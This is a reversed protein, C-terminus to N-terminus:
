LFIRRLGNVFLSPSLWMLKHEWTTYNGKYCMNASTVLLSKLYGPYHKLFLISLYNANGNGKKVRIEFRKGFTLQSPVGTLSVTDCRSELVILLSRLAWKKGQGM